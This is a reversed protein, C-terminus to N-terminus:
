PAAVTALKRCCGCAGRWPIAGVTSANLHGERQYVYVPSAGGRLWVRPRDGLPRADKIRLPTAVFAMTRSPVAVVAAADDCVTNASLHWESQGRSDQLYREFIARYEQWDEGSRRRGQSM